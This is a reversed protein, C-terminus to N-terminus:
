HWLLNGPGHVWALLLGHYVGEKSEGLVGCLGEGGGLSLVTSTIKEVDAHALLRHIEPSFIDLLYSITSLNQNSGSAIDIKCAGAAEITIPKLVSATGDANLEYEATSVKVGTSKGFAECKTYEGVVKVTLQRAETILGHFYAHKCTVVPGSPLTAQFKQLGENLILLLAPLSGSWLFLHAQAAGASFASLALMMVLAALGMATTTMRKM